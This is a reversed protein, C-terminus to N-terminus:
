NLQDAPTELTNTVNIKLEHEDQSGTEGKLTRKRIRYSELNIPDERVLGGLEDEYDYDM